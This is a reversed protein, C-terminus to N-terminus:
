DEAEDATRTEFIRLIGRSTCFPMYKPLELVRPSPSTISFTRLNAFREDALAQDVMRWDLLAAKFTENPRYRNLAEFNLTTLNPCRLFPLIRGLLTEGFHLHHYTVDLRRLGTSYELADPDLGSDHMRTLHSANFRLCRLDEGIHRLYAGVTSNATLSVDSLYLSSFVHIVPQALLKEFFIRAETDLDLTHLQAPFRYEDASHYFINHHLCLSSLSPFVDLVDLLEKVRFITYAVTLNSLNPCVHAALFDSHRVMIDWDISCYLTTVQPMHGLKMLNQDLFGDVRSLDLNLCRVFKLIPHASTRVIDLFCELRSDDLHIDSFLRLISSWRWAACVLGCLGVTQRSIPDRSTRLEGIILDIIDLPLTPCM